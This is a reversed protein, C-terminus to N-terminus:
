SIMSPVWGSAPGASSWGRCGRIMRRACRGSGPLWWRGWMVGGAQRMRIWGAETRTILSSSAQRVRSGLRLPDAFFVANTRDIPRQADARADAEAQQARALQQEAQRVEATAEAAQQRAQQRAQDRERELATIQEAAARHAEAIQQGAQQLATQAQQRAQNVEAAAQDRARQIQAAADSSAAEARAEADRRAADAARLQQDAEVAATRAEDADTDARQRRQAERALEARADAVQGAAEAQVAELQAEAAQPDATRELQALAGTLHGMLAQVDARISDRLQAARATAMTVPRGLDDPQAPGSAQREAEQRRRFAALASHPRGTVPDSLGCYKPRAGAGDRAPRPENPCDPYACTVATDASPPGTV